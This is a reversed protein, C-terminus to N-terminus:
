RFDEPTLKDLDTLLVDTAAALQLEADLRAAREQQCAAHVQRSYRCEMALLAALIVAAAIAVGLAATLYGTM